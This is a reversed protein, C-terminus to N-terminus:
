ATFRPISDTGIASSRQQSLPWLDAYMAPFNALVEPWTRVRIVNENTQVKQNWPRDLLYVTVGPRPLDKARAPNDDFFVVPEQPSAAEALARKEDKGIRVADYDIGWQKLWTVSVGALEAERDSAITVHYAGSRLSWLGWQADQYPVLNSLFVPDHHYRKWWAAVNADDIWEEAKHSTIDDYRYSTGFKANIAVCTCIDREALTGDIDCVIRPRNLEAMFARMPTSGDLAQAMNQIALEPPIGAIRAADLIAPLVINRPNGHDDYAKRCGCSACM